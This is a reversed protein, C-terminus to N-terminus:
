SESDAYSPCLTSMKENDTDTHNLDLIWAWSKVRLSSCKFLRTMRSNSSVVEAEVVVMVIVIVVVEQEKNSAQKCDCTKNLEDNVQIKKRKKEKENKDM